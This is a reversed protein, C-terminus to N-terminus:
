GSNAGIRKRPSIQDLYKADSVMEEWAEETLGDDFAHMLRYAEHPFYGYDLLTLIAISRKLLDGSMFYSRVDSLAFPLPKRLQIGSEM